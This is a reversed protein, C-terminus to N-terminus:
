NTKENQKKDKELFYDCKKFKDCKYKEKQFEVSKCYNIGFSLFLFMIIPIMFEM